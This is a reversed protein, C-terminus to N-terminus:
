PTKVVVGAARPQNRHFLKKKLDPWFESILNNGTDSALTLTGRVLARSSNSLRDPSWYNALFAAGYTSAFRVWPPIRKGSDSRGVFTHEFAHTTRDVFAGDGMRLYRPDEGAVSNATFMFSNRITDYGVTSASRRWMGHWGEGWEHPNDRWQLVTAQVGSQLMAFPGYVKEFHFSLKDSVSLPPSDPATSPVIQAFILAPCAAILAFRSVKM